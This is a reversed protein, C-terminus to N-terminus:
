ETTVLLSFDALKGAQQIESENRGWCESIVLFVVEKGCDVFWPCTLSCGQPFIDPFLTKQVDFPIFSTVWGAVTDFKASVRYHIQLCIQDFVSVSVMATHLSIDLVAISFSCHLRTRYFRDSAFKSNLISHVSLCWDIWFIIDVCNPSIVCWNSTYCRALFTALFSDCFAYFFFALFSIVQIGAIVVQTTKKMWVFSSAM